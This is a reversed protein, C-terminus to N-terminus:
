SVLEATTAPMEQSIPRVLLVIGTILLPFYNTLPVQYLGTIVSMIPFIILLGGIFRRKRMFLVIGFIIVAPLTFVAYALGLDGIFANIGAVFDEASQTISMIAVTAYCLAGAVAFVAAVYGLRGIWKTDSTMHLNRALLALGGAVILASSGLLIWAMLWLARNGEIAAIQSAPNTAEFFGTLGSTVAGTIFLIPGVILLIGNLKQM